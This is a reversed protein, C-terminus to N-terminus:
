KIAVLLESPIGMQVIVQTEVQGFGAQRALEALQVPCCGGCVLPNRAYIWKWSRVFLRSLPDVGETMSLLVLRGGPKLVRRFGALWRLQDAVPALDLVYSSILRDFSASAYPLWGADAACLPARTRRRAVALMRPAIDLGFAFAPGGLAAQFKLHDAGTGVGVELLRQGSALELCELARAKARSEFAAFLDYSAGLLNYFRTISAQYSPEAMCAM